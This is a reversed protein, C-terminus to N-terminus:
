RLFADSTAVAIILERLNGGTMEFRRTAVQVSPDDAATERRKLAYRFWQKVMCARAEPASALRSGLEGADSFRLANGVGAIMGSADIPKGAETTRYAGIGDFNEFGFGVPDIMQHCGACAPSAVLSQFHERTTRDAPRLPVDLSIGPPHPPLAMCLVADRIFVGRRVPSGIHPLARLALMAPRALIGPRLTPDMGYVMMLRVPTFARAGTMLTAFMGDQQLTVAAGFAVTDDAVETALGPSWVPFVKPDKASAALGNLELWWRYFGGVGLVARPDKLLALVLAELEQVTRIADARMLLAVDPEASFLLGAVRKVAERGGIVLPRGIGVPPNVPRADAPTTAADLVPAASRDTGADDPTGTASGGGGGPGGGGVMGGGGSGSSPLPEGLPGPENTGPDLSTRGGCASALLVIVKLRSTAM